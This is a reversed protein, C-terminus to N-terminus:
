WWMNVNVAILQDDLRPIEGPANISSSGEPRTGPGYFWRAYLLMISERSQWDTKFVLRAALVDFTENSDKDNPVVHDVRVGAAMQPLFAYLADAGFKYRLPRRLPPMDEGCNSKKNAVVAGANIM